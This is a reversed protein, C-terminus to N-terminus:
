WPKLWTLHNERRIESGDVTTVLIDFDQWSEVTEPKEVEWLEWGGFRRGDQNICTGCFIAMREVPEEHTVQAFLGSTGTCWLKQPRPFGGLHQVYWSTSLTLLFVFLLHNFYVVCFFILTPAPPIGLFLLSTKESFEQKWLHWFFGEFLLMALQMTGVPARVKSVGSGTPVWRFRSGGESGRSGTPVMLVELWRRDSGMSVQFRPVRNRGLGRGM